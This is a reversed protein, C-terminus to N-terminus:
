SHSCGGSGNSHAQPKGGPRSHRMQICLVLAALNERRSTRRAFAGERPRFNAPILPWPIRFSDAEVVEPPLARNGLRVTMEWVFEGLRVLEQENLTQTLLQEDPASWGTSHNSM